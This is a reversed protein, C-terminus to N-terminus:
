GTIASKLQSNHVELVSPFYFHYVKSVTAHKLSREWNEPKEVAISDLLDRLLPILFDWMTELDKFNWHKSGRIMGGIIEAALCEKGKCKESLLDEIVNKFPNFLISGYNRFLRQFLQFCDVSFKKKEISFYKVFEEFFETNLFADLITKNCPPLTERSQNNSYFEKDISYTKLQKPWTQYGWHSKDVFVFVDLDKQSKIPKSEQYQLWENDPRNDGPQLSLLVNKTPNIGFISYDIEIRKFNPKQQDLIM